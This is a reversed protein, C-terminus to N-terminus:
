PVQFEASKGAYGGSVRVEYTAPTAKGMTDLAYTAGDPALAGVTPVLKWGDPGKRYLKATGQPVAPSVTGSVRVRGEALPEVTASVTVPVIVDNELELRLGFPALVTSVRVMTGPPPIPTTLTVKGDQGTRGTGTWTVKSSGATEKVFEVRIGAGAVPVRGVEEGAQMRPRDLGTEVIGAGGDGVRFATERLEPTLLYPRAAFPDDGHVVGCRNDDDCNIYAVDDGDQAFASLETAGARKTVSGGGLARSVFGTTGDLSDFWTVVRGRDVSVGVPETLDSKLLMRPKGGSLPIRWVETFVDSDGHGDDRERRTQAILSEGELDLAVVPLCVGKGLRRAGGRPDHLEIVSCPADFFNRPRRVDMASVWRGRDTTLATLDGRGSRVRGLTSYKTRGGAIRLRRVVCGTRRSCGVGFVIEVGGGASRGVDFDQGAAPRDRQIRPTGGFRYTVLARTKPALWVAVGGDAKVPSSAPARAVYRDADAAPVAVVLTIAAAAAVGVLRRHMPPAYARGRQGVM